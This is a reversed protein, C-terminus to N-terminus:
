DVKILNFKSLKTMTGFVTIYLVLIFISLFKLIFLIGAKSDEDLLRPCSGQALKPSFGACSDHMVYKNQQM